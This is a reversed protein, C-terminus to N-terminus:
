ENAKKPISYYKEGETEECVVEGNLVLQNLVVAIKQSDIKRLDCHNDTIDKMTYPRFAGKLIVQICDKLFQGSYKARIEKEGQEARLAKIEDTIQQMVEKYEDQLDLAAYMLTEQNARREKLQKRMDMKEKMSLKIEKADAKELLTNLRVIEYNNETVAENSEKIQINCERDVLVRRQKLEEIKEEYEDHVKKAKELAAERIAQRREEEKSLQQEDAM